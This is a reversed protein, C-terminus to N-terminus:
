KAMVQEVAAIVRAANPLYADELVKAFPIPTHPPTVMQIPARLAHFATSAVLAAIDAAFGCRPNGEDVIVLRGTEEVSECITEEDLPSTCRLDILTAEIDKKRLEIVAQEAINVMRGLACITVDEGDARLTAEGFPLAYAEDPVEGVDDYMVKNEFFIVPDNDRIATILLGKAEYPSSPMVVKLGPIHTVLAHLTQSHQAAASFGAGCQMRIVLPMNAKGGFMFRFKAAQNLIQDFCCGLFDCFMLEAVPRLGTTAAGVAAGIYSMESIPTDIVRLPGFEKYLGKTVGMVGGWADEEGTGGMGGAIDEGILIVNEDHLMEHRMAENLAQRFSKTSV